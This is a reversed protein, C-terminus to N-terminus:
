DDRTEKVPCKTQATELHVVDDFADRVLETHCKPCERRPNFPHPM